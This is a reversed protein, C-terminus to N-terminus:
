DSTGGEYQSILRKFKSKLAAHINSKLVNNDVMNELLDMFDIINMEKIDPMQLDVVNAVSREIIVIANDNQFFTKVNMEKWQLSGKDKPEASTFPESISIDSEQKVKVEATAAVEQKALVEQALPSGQAEQRVYTDDFDIVLTKLDVNAHLCPIDIDNISRSTDFYESLYEWRYKMATDKTNFIPYPTIRRKSLNQRKIIRIVVMEGEQLQMLENANLLKRADVSETKNKDFSLTGGSRSKTTITQDGLKSAIKEATATDTTLIYITNGCNGDITEWGDGYKEKLQSYAQIVLNFRMNRGLCVTVINSMGEIAPMNGFEDLIFVVERLCKNGKAVSANKALETYLQKVFLSAIVHLSADYDPTIMFVATPKIFYDMKGIRISGLDETCTVKVKGTNSDIEKVHVKLGDETGKEKLLLTDGEHIENVFNIEFRGNVDTKVSEMEENSFIIEIRTLPTAYGVLNRGFGIRKLDFSSKSTMKAVADLTFIGLKASTNALIGARTVGSSFNLTAYQMKAVNDPPLKSFYDDLADTEIGTEEDVIKKTGLNTLMNAVSYMTIQEDKNERICKDCIALILANCLSISSEQWFKDKAQPDYYLMYSISQALQQATSFDKQKYADIVLQLIQYSMSEMPKMLNLVEVHYGRKELTEKSASYLEGKPDNMILSAKQKARSYIDIMSFMGIEGKGSRTTGIWLNNVPSDDIFLKNKYRSVPVGGRGEFEQTKEPVAKYQKKLEELTTFRSTGKQGDELSRFNSRIKYVVISSCILAILTFAGYFAFSKFHFGFFTSWNIQVPDPNLVDKTNLITMITNTVVNVLGNILTFALIFVMLGIIFVTKNHSFVKTM